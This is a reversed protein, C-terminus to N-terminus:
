GIAARSKEKVLKQFKEFPMNDIDINKGRTNARGQPQVFTRKKEKPQATNRAENKIKEEYAQREEDFHKDYIIKYAERFAGSGYQDFLYRRGNNDKKDLVQDIEYKYKEYPVLSDKTTNILTEEEKNNNEKAVRRVLPSIADKILPMLTGKPNRTFDELFKNTDEESMKDIYDNVLKNSTADTKYREAEEKIKEQKEKLKRLEGLEKTQKSQLERINLYMKALEEASKGKLDDPLSSGEEDTEESEEESEEETSEEEESEEPLEIEEELEEEPEEELVEKATVDQPDPKVAMVTKRLEEFSPETDVNTGQNAEPVQGKPAGKQNNVKTEKSM